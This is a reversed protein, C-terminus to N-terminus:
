RLSMWYDWTTYVARRLEAWAAEATGSRAGYRRWAYRRVWEDLPARAPQGGGGGGGVGGVGGGVGAEGGAGCQGTAKCSRGGGAAAGAAGAATGERRLRRREARNAREAGKRARSGPRAATLATWGGVADRVAAVSRWEGREEEQQEDPGGGREGGGGGGDDGGKQGLRGEGREAAGGAAGKGDPRWVQLV